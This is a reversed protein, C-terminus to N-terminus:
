LFITCTWSVYRFKTLNSLNISLQVWWCHHGMTAHVAEGKGPNGLLEGPVACTTSRHVRVVWGWLLPSAELGGGCSLGRRHLVHQLVCRLLLVFYQLPLIMKFHCNIVPFISVLQWGWASGWRGLPLSPLATLPAIRQSFSCCRSTMTRMTVPSPSDLLWLLRELYLWLVLQHPPPSFFYISFMGTSQTPLPRSMRWVEKSLCPSRMRISWSAMWSSCLLLLTICTYASSPM